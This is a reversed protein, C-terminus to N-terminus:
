KRTGKENEDRTAISLMELQTQILQEVLRIYKDDLHAVKEDLTVKNETGWILRDSSVGLLECMRKLNTISVGVFGTEADAIFRPTVGILEAFRERTYSAKERYTRINKGIEINIPKKEKERMIEGDM